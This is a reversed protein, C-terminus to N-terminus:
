TLHPTFNTMVRGIIKTSEICNKFLTDIETTKTAPKLCNMADSKVKSQPTCVYTFYTRQLSLKSRAMRKFTLHVTELKRLM